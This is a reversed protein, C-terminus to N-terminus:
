ESKKALKFDLSMFGLGLVVCLSALPLLNSVVHFDGLIRPLEFVFMRVAVTVAFMLTAIGKSLWGASCTFILGGCLFYAIVGLVTRLTNGYSFCMVILLLCQLAGLIGYIGPANYRVARLLAVTVVELFGPFILWLLMEGVSADFIHAFGFFYVIRLFLASGLFIGAASIGKGDFDMRYRKIQYAM